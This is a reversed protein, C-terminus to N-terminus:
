NNTLEPNDHINGIINGIDDANGHMVAIQLECMPSVTENGYGAHYYVDGDFYMTGRQDTYQLQGVTEPIVEIPFSYSSRIKYRIACPMFTDGQVWYDHLLDGYLWEGNGNKRKARFLIERM